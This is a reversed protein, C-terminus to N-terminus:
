ATRGCYQLLYAYVGTGTDEGRLGRDTEFAADTIPKIETRFDWGERTAVRCFLMCLKIRSVALSSDQILEDAEKLFDSKLKKTTILKTEM